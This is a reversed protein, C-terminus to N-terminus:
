ERKMDYEPFKYFAKSVYTTSCLQSEVATSYDIMNLMNPNNLRMRSQLQMIDNTAEKKSSAVKEKCFIVEGSQPNKLLTIDGFRPDKMKKLYKYNKELPWEKKYDAEPLDTVTKKQDKSM